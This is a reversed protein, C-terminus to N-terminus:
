RQVRTVEIVPQAADVGARLVRPPLEEPKGHAAEHAERAARRSAFSSNNGEQETPKPAPM